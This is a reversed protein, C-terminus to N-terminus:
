FIMVALTFCIGIIALCWIISLGIEDTASTDLFLARLTEIIPTMPQNEAIVRLWSPMTETPVFGSSIYPLVIIIATYTSAAEASSSILGLIVSLWTVAVIFLILILFIVLWQVFNASPTFGIALAVIIVVITTIINRIVAAMVHGALISSRAIAMSRLRDMIGQSLDNNISVATTSACQGICQLIVGPVIYNQYTYEGVDLAGGFVYVFTFMLAIPILISTVLADLNRVSLKMCRRFMTFSDQITYIFKQM